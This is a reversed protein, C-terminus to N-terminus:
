GEPPANQHRKPALNSKSLIRTKALIYQIKFILDLPGRPSELWFDARSALELAKDYGNKTKVLSFTCCTEYTFQLRVSAM